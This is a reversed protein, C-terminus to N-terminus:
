SALAMPFLQPINLWSPTLPGSGQQILLVKHAPASALCCRREQCPGLNASVLGPQAGGLQAQELQASSLSLLGVPNQPGQQLFYRFHCLSQPSLPEIWFLQPSSPHLATRGPGSTAKELAMWPLPALHAPLPSAAANSM